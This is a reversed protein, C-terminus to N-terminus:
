TNIEQHVSTKINNRSSIQRSLPSSHSIQVTGSCQLVKMLGDFDPSKLDFNTCDNILVKAGRSLEECEERWGSIQQVIESVSDNELKLICVIYHIISM